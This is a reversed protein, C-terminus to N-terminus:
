RFSPCSTAAPLRCFQCPWHRPRPSQAAHRRGSTRFPWSIPSNAPIGDLVWMKVPAETWGSVYCHKIFPVRYLKGDFITTWSNAFPFGLFECEGGFMVGASSMPLGTIAIQQIQREPVLVVIDVDKGADIVSFNYARWNEKATTPDLMSLSIKKHASIVGYPPHKAGTLIHKATLWYERGDLQISFATGVDVASRTLVTRFLINNTATASQAQAICTALLAFLLMLALRSPLMYM